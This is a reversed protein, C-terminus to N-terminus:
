KDEKAYFSMTESKHLIQIIEVRDEIVDYFVRYNQVRLRFTAEQRGRLHKISGHTKEPENSLRTEIANVIIGAYYRKMKKLQRIALPKFVIQFM